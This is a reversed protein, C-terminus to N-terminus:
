PKFEWFDTCGVVRAGGSPSAQNEYGWGVYAKTDTSYTILYRNGEGPYDTVYQWADTAPDYQWIDRLGREDEGTVGAGFYGRGSASFGVGRSRSTGPFDARRTWQNTAPNYSFLHTPQGERQNIVYGTENITFTALTGPMEPFDRGRHQDWNGDRIWLAPSGEQTLFFAQTTTTFLAVEGDEGAYDPKFKAPSSFEKSYVRKQFDQANYRYGLGQIIWEVGPTPKLRFLVQQHTVTANLQDFALWNDQDTQYILRSSSQENVYRYTRLSSAMGFPDNDSSTSILMATFDGGDADLHALRRWNAPATHQYVREVQLTDRENYLFRLRFRYTQGVTLGSARIVNLTFTTLPKSDQTVLAMSKGDVTQATLQWDAVTLSPSSKVIIEATQNGTALVSVLSTRAVAQRESTFITPTPDTRRCSVGWIFLAAILSWGPKCVFRFVNNKM